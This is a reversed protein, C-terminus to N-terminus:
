GTCFDPRALDVLIRVGGKLRVTLHALDSKFNECWPIDGSPVGVSGMTVAVIFGLLKPILVIGFIAIM